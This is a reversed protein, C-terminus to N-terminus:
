IKGESDESILSIDYARQSSDGQQVFAFEGDALAIVDTTWAHSTYPFENYNEAEKM